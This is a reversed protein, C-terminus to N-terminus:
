HSWSAIKYIIYSVTPGTSNTKADGVLPGQRSMLGVLPGTVVLILIFECNKGWNTTRNQLVGKQIKGMQYENDKIYEVLTKVQNVWSTTRYM